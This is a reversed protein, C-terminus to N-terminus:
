DMLSIIQEQLSKNQKKLKKIENNKEMFIIKDDQRVYEKKYKDIEKDLEKKDKKYQEEYFQKFKLEVEANAIYSDNLQGKLLDQDELQREQNKYMNCLHKYDYKLKNHVACNDLSGKVIKDCEERIELIKSQCDIKEKQLLDCVTNYDKDTKLQKKYRRRIDYLNQKQEWLDVVFEMFHQSNLITGFKLIGRGEYPPDINRLVNKTDQKSFEDGYLYSCLEKVFDTNLESSM